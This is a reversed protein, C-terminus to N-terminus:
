QTKLEYVFGPLGLFASENHPVTKKQSDAYDDINSELNPCSGAPFYARGGAEGGCGSIGLTGFVLGALSVSTLALKKFLSEKAKNKM